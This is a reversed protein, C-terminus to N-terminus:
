VRVSKSNTLRSFLRHECEADSCKDCVWTWPPSAAKQQTHGATTNHTIAALAADTRRQGQGYVTSFPLAHRTLIERLRQDIAGRAAIGDRLFSDAHWQVDLGTLLTMNLTRQFHIAFPYLSPDNFLVDSYVATILPTTDAIVCRGEGSDIRQAQTQAIHLQEHALPSRGHLLCWTRLYEDIHLPSPYLARLPELLALALTSKGTCEAGLIGIRM